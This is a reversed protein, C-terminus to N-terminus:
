SSTRWSGCVCCNTLPPGPPFGSAPLRPPVPEPPCPYQHVEREQCRERRQRHQERPDREGRPEQDHPPVRNRTTHQREAGRQARRAEARRDRNGDSGRQDADGGGLGHDLVLRGRALASSARVEHTVAAYKRGCVCYRATITSVSPSLRGTLGVTATISRLGGPTCTM